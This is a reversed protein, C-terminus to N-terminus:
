GGKEIIRELREVKKNLIYVGKIDGIIHMVRREGELRDKVRRYISSKGM